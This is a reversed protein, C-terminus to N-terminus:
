PCCYRLNVLLGTILNRVTQDISLQQPNGPSIVLDAPPPSGSSPATSPMTPPHLRLQRIFLHFYRPFLFSRMDHSNCYSVLISIHVLMKSMGTLHLNIIHFVSLNDFLFHHIGRAVAVSSQCTEQRSQLHIHEDASTNAATGPHGEILCADFQIRSYVASGIRSHLREEIAIKIIIRIGPAGMMFMLMAFAAATMMVAFATMMSSFSMTMSVAAATVM